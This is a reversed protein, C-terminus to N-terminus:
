KLTQIVRIRVLYIKVDSHRVKLQYYCIAYKKPANELALRISEITRLIYFGQHSAKRDQTEIKHWKILNKSQIKYVNKKTYVKGNLLSKAKKRETKCM